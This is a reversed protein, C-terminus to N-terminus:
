KGHSDSFATTYLFILTVSLSLQLNLDTKTLLMFENGRNFVNFDVGSSTLAKGGTLIGPLQLMKKELNFGTRHSPWHKPCRKNFQKWSEPAGSYSCCPHAM